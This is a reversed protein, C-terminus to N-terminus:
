KFIILSWNLYGGLISEPQFVQLEKTGSILIQRHHVTMVESCHKLWNLHLM